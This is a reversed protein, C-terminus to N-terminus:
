VNPAEESQPPSVLPQKDVEESSLAALRTAWIAGAVFGDRVGETRAREPEYSTDFRREAEAQARRMMLLLMHEDSEDILAEDEHREEPQGLQKAWANVGMCGLYHGEDDYVTVMGEHAEWEIAPQHTEPQRPEFGHEVGFEVGGVSSGGTVNCDVCYTPVGGPVGFVFTSHEAFRHGCMCLAELDEPQSDPIVPLAAKFPHCGGEYASAWCEDHHGCTTTKHGIAVPAPWQADELLGCTECVQSEPM